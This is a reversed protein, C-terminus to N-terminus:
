PQTMEYEACAKLWTDPRSALLRLADDKRLPKIGFLPEARASLVEESPEELLPLIIGKLKQNLVNDLFEIAATKRDPKKSELASYAFYMEKQPYDLALLRFIIEIDRQLRERLARLLLGKGKGGKVLAQCLTLKEYYARAQAHVKDAIISRAKPLEPNAEHLRNLAKVIRHQLLPDEADLNEVLLEASRTVPIRGLAWAIERRLAPDHHPDRLVDGLTGLIREGYLLLAERAGKRSKRVALLELVIFVLEVHGAKAAAIAAAQAVDPSPDKILNRLLEIGDREPLRSALRAASTRDSLLLADIMERAPTFNAPAHDAAWGAATARVEPRSDKLLADLSGDNGGSCLYSIAAQRVGPAADNLLSQAQNTCDVPLAPLTRAAEERIYDLPHELLRFLQPSFDVNRASQLLRLSYLIHRENNSELADVLLRVSAPDSVYSSVDGLDVERRKLQERFSNVYTKRLQFCIVGCVFTLIAAVAATGRLGLPLFSSTFLIIVVGAVARGIRDVFVDVFIKLQKRVSPALPLYLLELGSRNISYRSVTDSGRAAAAAILSPFLFLFSSSM